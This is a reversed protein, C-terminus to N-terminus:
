SSSYSPDFQFNFERKKKLYAQRIWAPVHSIQKDIESTLGGFYVNHPINLCVKNVNIGVGTFNDEVCIALKFDSCSMIEEPDILNEFIEDQDLKGLNALKVRERM